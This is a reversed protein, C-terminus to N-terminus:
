FSHTSFDDDKDILLMLNQLQKIEIASTWRPRFQSFNKRQVLEISSGDWQTCDSSHRSKRGQVINIGRVLGWLKQISRWQSNECGLLRVECTEDTHTHYTRTTTEM